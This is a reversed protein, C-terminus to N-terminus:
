LPKTPLIWTPQPSMWFSGVGMQLKGRGSSRWPVPWTAGSNGVVPYPM